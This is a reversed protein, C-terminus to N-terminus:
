ESCKMLENGGPACLIRPPFCWISLYYYSRHVGGLEIVHRNVDGVDIGAASEIAFDQLQFADRTRSEIKRAGPKPEAGILLQVNDAVAFFGYEGVISTVVEGQEDIVHICPFGVEFGVSDVVKRAPSAGISGLLDEEGVGVAMEDLENPLSSHRFVRPCHRIVFYGHSIVFSSIGLSSPFGFDSIRFGFASNMFESQPGIIMRQQEDIRQRIYWCRISSVCRIGTYLLVEPIEANTM